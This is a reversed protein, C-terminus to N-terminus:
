GKTRVNSRGGDVAVVQGTIWNSEPGLLFAALAAIDEPRGLRPIAHSAAIAKAIPESSIIPAALPTDTLSPAIANVRVRPSLEAALARTLGEVGGKAASIVSHNAFGQQVAVTSFLVVAGDAAALPKVAAKVALAPALTNLRFADIFDDPSASRLSKLPISGVCFALGSLRGGNAAAEVVNVVAEPDTVDAAAHSAGLEDALAALAETNRGSLFLARGSKALHRSLTAGIGGTAGFILLPEAM